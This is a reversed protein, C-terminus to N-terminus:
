VFKFSKSDLTLTAANVGALVAILEKTGTTGQNLYIGTGTTTGVSAAGLSYSSAAGALQIVDPRKFDTILAYDQDGASTYFSGGPTAGNAAVGLVFTDKGQGGTLTDVEPAVATTSPSTSGTTSQAPVIESGVLWDNGNGGLLKDSGQGGYLSDKGQGGDLLDNGLGGFLQDQGQGGLLSDDGLGGLLSDNGAGGLLTDNGDGGDLTDNGQDGMLLDNGLDGLLSDAGGRGRLIDNGLGGNVSDARSSGTLLDDGDTSTLNPQRNKQAQTTDQTQLPKDM